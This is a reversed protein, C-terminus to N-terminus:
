AVWGGGGGGGWWVESVSTSCAITLGEGGGWVVVTTSFCTREVGRNNLLVHFVSDDLGAGVRCWVRSNNLLVHFMSVVGRQQQAARVSNDLGWGLVGCQQRPAPREGEKNRLLVRRESTVIEGFDLSVQSQVITAISGGGFFYVCTLKQGRELPFQM